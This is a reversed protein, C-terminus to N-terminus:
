HEETSLSLNSVTPQRSRSRKRFHLHDLVLLTSGWVTAALYGAVVDSPYHVGLYIRSLGIAFVLFATFTWTAIRQARSRIRATLLGALVGYFCFSFLAHGSPFSYDGPLPVFFPAPRARHFALKLTFNLVVAGAITVALWILARYWHNRLFVAIAVATIVAPGGEGLFSTAIMIRTLTPSAFQHVWGRVYSDFAQTHNHSVSEAIWGFLFLALVAAALSLLTATEILVTPKPATELRPLQPPRATTM